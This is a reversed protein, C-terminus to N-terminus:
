QSNPSTQFTVKDLRRTGAQMGKVMDGVLVQGEKARTGIPIFPNIVRGM